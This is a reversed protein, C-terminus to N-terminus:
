MVRPDRRITEPQTQPEPNQSQFRYNKDAQALVYVGVALCATFSSALWCVALYGSLEVYEIKELSSFVEGPLYTIYPVLIMQPMGVKLSILSDPNLLKWRDGRAALVSKRWGVDSSDCPPGKTLFLFAASCLGKERGREPETERERERERDRKIIDNRELAQTELSTYMSGHKKDGMRKPDRGEALTVPIGFQSRPAATPLRYNKQDSIPRGVGMLSFGDLMM